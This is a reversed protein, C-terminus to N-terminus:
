TCRTRPAAWSGPRPACTTPSSGTAARARRAQRHRQRDRRRDRRRLRGGAAPRGETMQSSPPSSTPTRPSTSRRCAAPATRRSRAPRPAHGGALRGRRRRLGRRRGAAGGPRGRADRARDRGAGGEGRGAAAGRGPRHRLDGRAGLAPSRRARDRHGARGSSRNAIYRVPDIPEHTPGPPSWCM